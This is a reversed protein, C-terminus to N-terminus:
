RRIVERETTLPHQVNSHTAVASVARTVARAFPSSARVPAMAKTIKKTTQASAIKQKYVRLQAGM